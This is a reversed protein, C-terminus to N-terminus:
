SVPAAITTPQPPYMEELAEVVLTPVTIGREFAAADLQVKWYWPVRFTIQIPAYRPDKSSNAPTTTPMKRISCM